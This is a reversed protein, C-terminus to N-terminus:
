SELTLQDQIAKLKESKMKKFGKVKALEDLSKFDGHKKRYAVIARAKSANLGKIKTLAKTDAKNLNIKTQDIPTAQASQDSAQDSVVTAKSQDDSQSIQIVDSSSKTKDATDEAFVPTILVAAAVAALLSRYFSM